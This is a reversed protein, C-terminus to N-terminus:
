LAQGLAAVSDVTGLGLERRGLSSGSGECPGRRPAPPPSRVVLVGQLVRAEPSPTARLGCIPEEATVRLSLSAQSAGNEVVVEVTHEGERLGPLELVAFLTSNAELACGPLLAAVAAPCAAEFPASVNGGPWRATATASAGADVRLVLASSDTPVYLRGDHPTPYALRLGAVPSLVDFSCSLNHTSVSNGM